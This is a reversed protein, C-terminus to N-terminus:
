ITLSTKMDGFLETVWGASSRAAPRGAARENEDSATFSNGGTEWAGRKVEEIVVSIGSRINDGEISVMTDALRWIMERKQAPTFIGEILKVTLLPM